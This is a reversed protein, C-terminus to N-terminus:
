ENEGTTNTKIAPYGSIKVLGDNEISVEHTLAPFDAYSWRSKFLWVDQNASAVAHRYPLDERMTSPPRTRDYRGTIAWSLRPRLSYEWLCARAHEATGLTPLPERLDYRGNILEALTYGTFLGADWEPRRAAISCILDNVSRAQHLPEGGSITLGVTGKASEWVLRAALADPDIDFGGEFPHTKPNQCEPCFLNCGQLWVASRIGPGNAKTGSLLSHIRM